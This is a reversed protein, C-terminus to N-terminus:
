EGDNDCRFYLDCSTKSSLIYFHLSLVYTCDKLIQRFELKDHATYKFESTHNIVSMLRERERERERERVRERELSNRADDM